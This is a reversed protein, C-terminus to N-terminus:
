SGLSCLEARVGTAEVLEAGRPSSFYHTVVYIIRHIIKYVYIAHLSSSLALRQSYILLSEQIAHFSIASVFPASINWNQYIIHIVFSLARSM